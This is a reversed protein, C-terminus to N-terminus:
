ARENPDEDLLAGLVVGRMQKQMEVAAQQILEEFQKKEEPTIDVRELDQVIALLRKRQPEAARGAIERLASADLQRKVPKGEIKVTAPLAQFFEAEPATLWEAAPVHDAVGIVLVALCSVVSLRLPQGGM